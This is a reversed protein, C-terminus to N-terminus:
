SQAAPTGIDKLRGEIYTGFTFTPTDTGGLAPLIKLFGLTADFNIKVAQVGDNAAGTVTSFAGSALDTYSGDSTASEQVKVALTPSTGASALEAFLVANGLGTYKRVDLAASIAVSTRDSELANMVTRAVNSNIDRDM